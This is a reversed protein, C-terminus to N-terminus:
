KIGFTKLINRFILKYATLIKFSFLASWVDKQDQINQKQKEDREFENKFLERTSNIVLTPNIAHIAQIYKDQIIFISSAATKVENKRRSAKLNDSMADQTKYKNGQLAGVM